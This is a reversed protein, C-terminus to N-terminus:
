CVCMYIRDYGATNEIATSLKDEMIARMRSPMEETTGEGAEALAQLAEYYNPLELTNSCTHAQPLLLLAKRHDDLGYSVFPLEIVLDESGAAPLRDVGVRAM